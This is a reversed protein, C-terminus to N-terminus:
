YKSTTQQHVLLFGGVSIDNIKTFPFSLCSIFFHSQRGVINRSLSLIFIVQIQETPPIHICVGYGPSWNKASSKSNFLIKTALDCKTARHVIEILKSCGTVLNTVQNRRHEM